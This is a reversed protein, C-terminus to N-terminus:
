KLGALQAKIFTDQEYLNVVNSLITTVLQSRSLIGNRPGEKELMKDLREVLEKRIIFNMYDKRAM